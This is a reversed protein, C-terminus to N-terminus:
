PKTAKRAPKLSRKTFTMNPAASRRSPGFCAPASSSSSSSTVYPALLAQRFMPQAALGRQDGRPRTRLRVSLAQSDSSGADKGRFSWHVGAVLAM